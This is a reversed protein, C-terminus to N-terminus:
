DLWMKSKTWYPAIQVEGTANDVRYKCRNSKATFYTWKRGAKTIEIQSTRGENGEFHLTTM